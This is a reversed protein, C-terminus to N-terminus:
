GGGPESRAPAKQSRRLSGNIFNVGEWSRRVLWNRWAEADGPNQAINEESWVGHPYNLFGRWEEILLDRRALGDQVDPNSLDLDAETSFEPLADWSGYESPSPFPRM